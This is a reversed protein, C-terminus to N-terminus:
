YGINAMSELQFAHLSDINNGTSVLLTDDEHEADVRFHSSSVTTIRSNYVSM